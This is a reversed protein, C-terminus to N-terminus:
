TSEMLSRTVEHKEHEEYRQEEIDRAIETYYWLDGFVNFSTRSIRDLSARVNDFYEKPKDKLDIRLFSEVASQSVSEKLNWSALCATIIRHRVFKSLKEMGSVEAIASVFLSYSLSM